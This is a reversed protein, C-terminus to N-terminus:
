RRVPHDLKNAEIVLGAVAPIEQATSNSVRVRLYHGVTKEHPVDVPVMGVSLAPDVVVAATEEGTSSVDTDFGVNLGTVHAGDLLVSVGNFEKGVGPNGSTIPAFRINYALAQGSEDQQDATTRTKREQLITNVAVVSAYGSLILKDSAPHVLAHAARKKWVTWGGAKISYVYAQECDTSGPTTPVWLLYLGDTEYAVGFAKSKVVSLHSAFLNRLENDIPGSIVESAGYENVRVVGKTTLAYVDHNLVVATEPGVLQLKPDVNDRQWTEEDFGTLRWLGEEDKFTLLSHGLSLQRLIDRGASGFELYNFLPFAEPEEYKSYYSRNKRQENTTQVSTGAAPLPPNWATGHASATVAVAAGGIAREELLIMGPADAVGSVYYAYVLAAADINIAQILSKATRYINESASWNTYAIFDAGATYTRAGITIVDGASVAGTGTGLIRLLLRQRNVTNSVWLREGHAVLEKGLPPLSNQQALGEQSPSTYLTPGLVAEPTNDDFTILGAALDGASLQREYVLFMEEGPVSGMGPSQKSRYYQVFHNTTLGAPLYARHTIYKTRSSVSFAVTSTVAAGVEGYKFTTPDAITVTKLGGPFNADTSTVFIFDGAQFGHGASTITVVNAARVAAGIAVAVDKPNYLSYRIPTASVVLNDNADKVGILARYAVATDPPLWGTTGDGALVTNLSNSDLVPPVGANVPENEVGDLKKLGASSTFYLNGNLQAFQMRVGSPPAYPAAYQTEIGAIFQSLVNAGIQALVEDNYTTLKNAANGSTTAALGAIFAAFGPRPDAVGPRRLVADDAQTLAGKPLGLQNPNTYLGLVNVFPDSSM